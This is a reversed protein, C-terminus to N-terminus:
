KRLDVFPTAGGSVQPLKGDWTQIAKYEVLRDSLSESLLRNAKAQGEATIVLADAEGRAKEREIQAQAEATKLENERQQAKQTAEIKLNIADTINKPLRMSGIWYIKEVIIGLDQVQDRVDQIVQDMLAARGSGYIDAANMSSARRNLSDRVMNRLYLDTIEDVGKRYKQFVVDAKTGDIYYSIGIDANISTGEIDQFTVSEDTPSTPDETATWVYNQTFTPFKYIEENWGLIYRGPGVIEGTVGKDSGYLDFKVGVMGAPVKSCAGLALAMFFVAFMKKFNM